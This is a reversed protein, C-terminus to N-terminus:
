HELGEFRRWRLDIGDAGLYASNYPAWGRRGKRDELCYCEGEGASPSMRVWLPDGPMARTLVEQDTPQRYRDCHAREKVLVLSRRVRLKAAVDVVCLSISWLVVVGMALYPNPRPIKLRHSLFRM